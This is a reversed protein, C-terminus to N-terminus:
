GLKVQEEDKLVAPKKRWFEDGSLAQWGWKIWKLLSMALWMAWALMLVRYTWIPVSLVEPQPLIATARDQYWKLLYSSSGNGAIQMDPSGLLGNAVAAVMISLSAGIMAILSIQMFNFQLRSLPKNLKERLSLGVLCAVVIIILSPSTQSLGIALLFWQWANLPALKSWGLALSLILLASLVSWFLVAPGLISGAAWLVWRDRPLRISSHANVSPLQLDIKPLSYGMAQPEPERWKITVDQKGPKLLLSLMNGSEEEALQVRQKVDDIVLEQVEANDPLQIQHQVGRSSRISLNLNVENVRKGVSVSVESSQITVTQGVVGAPRDITLTLTEGPWPQWVPVVRQQGDTQSGLQNLYRNVPLGEAKVRWVPSADISWVELYDPNNAASLVIDGTAALKSSWSLKSQNAAFSLAVQGDEVSLQDDLLSENALLRISINLPVGEPSVRSVTTQVYWDLGLRLQREVKVFTPLTSHDTKFTQEDEESVVRTFQLQSNTVGDQDIGAITWSNDSSTWSSFKPGLPLSLPFSIRQLMPGSLVVDHHGQNVSLWVVQESDRALASAPIGDLLIQTPLWTDQSAPLPIATDSLAHVRLRLQLTNATASVSLQQIQACSGGDVLCDPVRTLRQKLTNLMKQNPFTQAQAIDPAMFSVVLCIIIATTASKLSKLWAAPSSGPSNEAEDSDDNGGIGRGVFCWALGLLLGIGLLRTVFNFKPSLLILRSSQDAKVPGAWSMRITRYGNWSPLGPGSQIMSNPDIQQLDIKSRSYRRSPKPAAVKSATVVIEEVSSMAVNGQNAQQNRRQDANQLEMELQKASRWQQTYGRDLQPYISIRITDIMYSLLIMALVVLTAWRYKELWHSLRHKQLVALLASVALLNLWILNPAGNEQWTLVLTVLALGAWRWGYFHRVSMIIIMALFLDLLSWQEVWTNPLNDAGSVALVRWGPPLHLKTDVKQLDLEWGNAPLASHPGTYRSEASLDLVKQRVEVGTAEKGTERTIFQPQQGISVQGLEINPQVNIRSQQIVGNIQDKISYGQGDFDLWMERKLKLDNRALNTIGREKVDLSLTQKPSLLYAPLGKWDNPLRTQNPDISTVGTVQVQRMNNDSAFVWVEQQPWPEPMEPMSFAKIDGPARGVIRISWEGPRLQVQLQEDGELRAPLDSSIETAIFGDLLVSGMDANRQKGSVRLKILTEIKVPHGDIVRRFVQMDINDESVKETDSQMLWLQGQSDFQPRAVSTDNVKLDVLGSGPTIYLSKPLKSWRFQGRITHKGKPLTVYPDGNKSQLLLQKSNSTVNLPWHDAEGPLQIQSESFLEWQQTFQGGEGNLDLQLRSPWACIRPEDNYRFPCEIEKEDHLVWDVWPALQDPVAVTQAYPKTSAFLSLTLLVSVSLLNLKNM